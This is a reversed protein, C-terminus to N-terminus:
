GTIGHAVQGPWIGVWSLLLTEMTMGVNRNQALSEPLRAWGELAAWLCAVRASQAMVELSQLYDLHVVNDLRRGQLRLLDGLLSLVLERLLLLDTDKAWNDALRLAAVPGQRPLNLLTEIWTRRLTVWGSEWLQWARLPRNAFQRSLSLAEAPPIGLGELWNVCQGPLMMPFPLRQLRSRITPILQSPHESLLLIHARAAPEELTKLLANAAAATMAEAPAIRLWRCASVQPTFALFENAHRVAEITIRKGTDPTIVLLDPHNGEALLRCSRCTGCPLGQATPAFCLAVQQLDDCYQEVLTGSEGAALMAQPLGTQVLSWIPSWEAPTPRPMNM